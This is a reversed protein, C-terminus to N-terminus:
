PILFRLWLCYDDMSVFYGNKIHGWEYQKFISVNESNDEKTWFLTRVKKGKFGRVIYKKRGPSFDSVEFQLGNRTGMVSAMNLKNLFRQHQM